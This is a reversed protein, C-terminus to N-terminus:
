SVFNMVIRIKMRENREDERMRIDSSLSVKMIELILIISKKQTQLNLNFAFYIFKNHLKDGGIVFQM